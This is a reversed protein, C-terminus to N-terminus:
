ELHFLWGSVVPRGDQAKFNTLMGVIRAQTM